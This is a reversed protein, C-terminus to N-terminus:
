SQLVGSLFLIASFWFGVVFALAVLNYERDSV